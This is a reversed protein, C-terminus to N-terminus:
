YRQFFDTIDEFCISDIFRILMYLHEYIYSSSVAKWGEGIRIKPGNTSENEIDNDNVMTNWSRIEHDLSSSLLIYM